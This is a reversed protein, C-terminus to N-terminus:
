KVNKLWWLVRQTYCKISCFHVELKSSEHCKKYRSIVYDAASGSQRLFSDLYFDDDFLLNELEDKSISVRCTEKTWAGKISLIFQNQTCM